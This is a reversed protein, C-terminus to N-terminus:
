PGPNRMWPSCSPISSPVTTPILYSIGTGLQIGPSGMRVNKLIQQYQQARRKGDRVSSDVGVRYSCYSVWQLHIRDCLTQHAVVSLYSSFSQNRAIEPSTSVRRYIEEAACNFVTMKLSLAAAGAPVFNKERNGPRPYAAPYLTLYISTTETM